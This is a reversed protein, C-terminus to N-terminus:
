DNFIQISVIGNAQLYRVYMIDGDADLRKRTRVLPQGNGLKPCYIKEPWNGPPLGLDSAFAVFQHVETEQLQEYLINM